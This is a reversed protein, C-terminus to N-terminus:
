SRNEKKGADGDIIQKIQKWQSPSLQSAKRLFMPVDSNETILKHFTAPVKKATLILEEADTNLVEAIRIIKDEAPPDMTGSEIKSIYTFDIGVKEALQRQTVKNLKRLERLRIGFESM